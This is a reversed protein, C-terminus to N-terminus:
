SKAIVIRAQAEDAAVDILQGTQLTAYDEPAVVVIVSSRVSVSSPGTAWMTLVFRLSSAAAFTSAARM